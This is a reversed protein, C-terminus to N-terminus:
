AGARARSRSLRSGALSERSRAAVIGPSDRLRIDARRARQRTRAVGDLTWRALRLGAVVPVLGNAAAARLPVRVSREQRDAPWAADRHPIQLTPGARYRIGLRGLHGLRRNAPCASPCRGAM